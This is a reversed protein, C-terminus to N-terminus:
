DDYGYYFEYEEQEREYEREKEEEEEEQRRREEEDDYEEQMKKERYYDYDFDDNDFYDNDYRNKKRKKEEKEKEVYNNYINFIEMRKNRCMTKIKNYIVRDCIGYFKGYKKWEELFIDIDTIQKELSSNLTYKPIYTLIDICVEIFETDLRVKDKIKQNLYNFDLAYKCNTLHSYDKNIMKLISISINAKCPEVPFKWEDWGSLVDRTYAEINDNKEKFGYRKIIVNIYESDGNRIMVSNVHNKNYDEPGKYLNHIKECIPYQSPYEYSFISGM